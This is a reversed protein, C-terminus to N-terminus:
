KEKWVFFEENKLFRYIFAVIIVFNMIWIKYYVCVEIFARVESINRCSFWKLIKIMKTTESFWDDFDCIFDVIKFDVVYFQFKEDSITCDTKKLDILM